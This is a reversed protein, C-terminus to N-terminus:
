DVRAGTAKIIPRHKEVEEQIFAGFREPTSHLPEAGSVAFREKIEPMQLIRGAETNLRSVVTRPTSAPALLGFYAVYEFGAVGAEAVTPLEPVLSSRQASTIGLARVKGAKVHPLATSVVNFMLPVDGSLVATMAQV